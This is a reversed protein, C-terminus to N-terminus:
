PSDDEATSEAADLSLSDDGEESTDDGPSAEEDTDAEGGAPVLEIDAPNDDSSGDDGATLGSLGLSEDPTINLGSPQDDETENRPGVSDNDIAAVPTHTGLSWMTFACTFAWIAAVIVTILTFTDGAKSGFASQGGPGGLAGTLGGGRGRQVLILLVLFLSLSGMLFGLLTGQLSAFFVLSM